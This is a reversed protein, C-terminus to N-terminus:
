YDNPKSRAMQKDRLSMFQKKRIRDAQKVLLFPKNRKAQEENRMSNGSKERRAKKAGYEGRDARGQLVGDLREQRTQRKKKHDGILNDPDIIGLPNDDDDMDSGQDELDDMDEIKRKKEIVDKIMRLKQIKALDEDTLIRDLDVKEKDLADQKKKEEQKKKKEEQKKKEKEEDEDQQQQQQQIEEDDSVSEWEGDDDEGEEEDESVSEWEDQDDDESEEEESEEEKQIQRKKNNNTTTTATTAVQKKSQEQQKKKNIEQKDQQIQKQQKAQLKLMDKINATGEFAAGSSEQGVEEGEQQEEEEEEEEEEDDSDENEDVEEWEGNNIQDILEEDVDKWDEEDDDDEDGSVSEWEDQDGEEVEEEGSVSEWEGDDDQDDSAEVDNWGEQDSDEEEEESWEGAEYKELAKNLEEDYLLEVGEVGQSVKQQGFQLVPAQMKKHGDRGREKKPLLHPAVERFFLLLSRGAMKVGKEKNDKYQILDHLLQSEMALPARSCIARITNLGIAIVEPNSGDNAFYKAINRIVPKLIDPDVLEHCAQAAVALIYTINKQSPTLLKQIYPYFNYLLLKHTSVLRAIFNMMLLRNDYKETSRRLQSFLREAYGQPDHILEIAPFNPNSRGQNQEKLKKFKDKSKEYRRKGSRTKKSVKNSLSQAKMEAKAEKEREAAEKEEDDTKDGDIKLFFNLATSVIKGNKSFVASAIVNVTKIDHWIKRKFLDIMVKLSMVTAIESPDSMMTFMFNQLSKNLKVNKQKINTNKIDAVIYSYLLKRLPKDHVRFLKFFLSLLPIQQMMNKNRMLILSKVLVRRLEPEFNTCSNELLDCIQKPFDKMDEPYCASVHSLYSVLQSFSKFDKTPKLQFIQLQTLYHQYQLKFEEKYAPPDRKTLNQLQLLDIIRSNGSSM